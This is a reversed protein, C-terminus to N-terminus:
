KNTAYVNLLKRIAFAGFTILFIIGLISVIPLELSAQLNFPLPTPWIFGPSYYILDSFALITIAHSIIFISIFIIKAKLNPENSIFRSLGYSAILIMPILLVFFHRGVNYSDLTTATLIYVSFFWILLLFESIKLTRKKISYFLFIIGLILFLTLPISSWTSIVTNGEGTGTTSIGGTGTDPTDESAFNHYYYDMIPLVTASFTGLLRVHPKDDEWPVHMFRFENISEEFFQLQSIPNIYYFPDTLFVASVFVATFLLILGLSKLIFKKNKIHNLSFKETWSDRFLIILAFLPILEASPLKANVAIAFVIASLIFYKLKISNKEKLSYLLLFISSLLFFGLYVETMTTRSHFFWIGHFLLTISFCAGTFKNFLMSGVFYAIVITLSGLLPSFLRGAEVEDQNPLAGEPDFPMNASWQYANTGEEGMLFYGLGIILSKISGGGRPAWHGYEPCEDLCLLECNGQGNWCSNLFDGKSALDFYVVGSAHYLREDASLGQNYMNFSLFSFAVLFIIIPFMKATLSKKLSTSRNM